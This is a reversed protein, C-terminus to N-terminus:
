PSQERRLRTERIVWLAGWLGAFCLMLMTPVLWTASFFEYLQLWLPRWRVITTLTGLCIFPGFPIVRERRFVWMAAFFVLAFFPGLAFSIFAAQWGLFAGVMGLLTVDGFGMAEETLAHGAVIRIGWVLAGGIALGMLSSLLSEWRVGGRWWVAVVAVTVAAGLLLLWRSVPERVIRAWLLASGRRWGRRGYWRRPLLAACWAWVCGLGLALGLIHRSGSLTAPFNWPSAVNMWRPPTEGITMGAVDIYVLPVDPLRGMPMLTALVLALLTGPVTLADPITQEDLDIFSVAVMWMALLLHVAFRAHLVGVSSVPALTARQPLGEDIRFIQEMEIVEWGYLGAALGGCLLEVILPRVWFEYGLLKGKRRLRLWGILPLRDLWREHSDRPHTSSWPSTPLPEFRLSYIAWNVVTGLTLGLAFTALLHLEASLSPFLLM